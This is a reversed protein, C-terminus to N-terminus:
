KLDRGNLECQKVYDRVAKSTEECIAYEILSDAKDWPAIASRTKRQLFGFQGKLYMNACTMMLQTFEQQSLGSEIRAQEQCDATAISSSLLLLVAVWYSALKHKQM